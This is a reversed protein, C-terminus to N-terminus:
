RSSRPKRVSSPCIKRPKQQPTPLGPFAIDSTLAAPCAKSARSWRGVCTQRPLRCSLAPYDETVVNEEKKAIVIKDFTELPTDDNNQLGGTQLCPARYGALM